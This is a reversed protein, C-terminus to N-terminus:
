PRAAHQRSARLRLASLYRGTPMSMAVNDHVFRVTPLQGSSIRQYTDRDVIGDDYLSRIAKIIQNKQDPTINLDAANLRTTYDSILTKEAALDRKYVPVFHTNISDMVLAASVSDLHVPIDFPATLLTYSWPRNVEYAYHNKDDRPLFYVILSVAAVFLLVRLTIQQRTM